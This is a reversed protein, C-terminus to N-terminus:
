GCKLKLLPANKKPHRAVKDNENSGLTDIKTQHQQNKKLYSQQIYKSMDCNRALKAKFLLYLTKLYRKIIRFKIKKVKLILTTWTSGILLISMYKSFCVSGKNIQLLCFHFLYVIFEAEFKHLKWCKDRVSVMTYFNWTYITFM